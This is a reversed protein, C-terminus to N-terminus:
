QRTYVKLTFRTAIGEQTGRFHLTGDVEAVWDFAALADIFRYYAEPTDIQAEVALKHVSLGNKKVEGLDKLTLAPLYTELYRSFAQEDYRRGLARDIKKEQEQLRQLRAYQKDFKTEAAALEASNREIEINLARYTKIKPTFVWFGFVVIVSLLLFLLIVSGFSAFKNM